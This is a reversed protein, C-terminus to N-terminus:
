VENVVVGLGRVTRRVRIGPTVPEPGHFRPVGQGGGAPGDPTHNGETVPVAVHHRQVAPSAQGVIQHVVLRALGGIPEIVPVIAV